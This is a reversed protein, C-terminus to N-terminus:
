PTYITYKIYKHIVYIAFVEKEGLVISLLASNFLVQM